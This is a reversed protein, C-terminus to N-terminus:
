ESKWLSTPRFDRSCILSQKQPSWPFIHTSSCREQRVRHCNLCSHLKLAKRWAHACTQCLWKWKFAHCLTARSNIILCVKFVMTKWSVTLTLHRQMFISFCDRNVETKVTQLYSLPMNVTTRGGRNVSARNGSSRPHLWCPFCSLRITSIENKALMLQARQSQQQPNKHKLSVALICLNKTRQLTFSKDTSKRSRHRVNWFDILDIKGPQKIAAHKTWQVNTLALWSSTYLITGVPFLRWNLHWQAKITWLVILIIIVARCNCKKINYRLPQM